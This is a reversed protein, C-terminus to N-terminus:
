SEGSGQSMRRYVKDLGAFGDMGVKAGAIQCGLVICDQLPLGRSLGFITTGCFTDGAGLTDLVKRPSFAPSQVVTGDQAQAMAGREGWASIITANPKADVAIKKLTDSMNTCGCFEAFDKGIFLVDARPILDQMEAKPKEIELSIPLAKHGLGHGRDHESSHTENWFEIWEVMSIVEEVNRGEFHIWSYQSLDLKKFDACKLEPLNKNSHIITRSGTAKNILVVSTPTDCAEYYVCNDICINYNRFDDVIFSLHEKKSLTGFFECAAGLQSLVTCNSSANGGRQWRMSVCGQKRDEVPFAKCESIINLTSYGICLIKCQKSSAIIKDRVDENNCRRVSNM